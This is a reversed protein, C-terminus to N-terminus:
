YYSSLTCIPNLTRYPTEISPKYLKASNDMEQKRCRCSTDDINHRTGLEEKNSSKRFCLDKVHSFVLLQSNATLEHVLNSAHM